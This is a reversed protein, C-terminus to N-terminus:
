ATSCSTRGASVWLAAGGVIVVIRLVPNTTVVDRFLFALILLTVGLVIKAGYFIHLARELRYGAM